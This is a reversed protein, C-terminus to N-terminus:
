PSEKCRQCKACDSCRYTVLEGIDDKDALEKLRQIPIMAKCVTPYTGRIEPDQICVHTCTRDFNGIGDTITYRDLHPQPQTIFVTNEQMKVQSPYTIDPDVQVFVPKEPDLDQEDATHVREMAQASQRGVQAFTDLFCVSSFNIGNVQRSM